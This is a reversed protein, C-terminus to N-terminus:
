WESKKEIQKVLNNLGLVIEDAEEHTADPTFTIRGDSIRRMFVPAALWRADKKKGGWESFIAIHKSPNSTTQQELLWSGRRTLQIQIAWVGADDVIKAEQVDAETIFPDKNVTVMVPKERFIPVTTSFDMAEKQTEVHLRLTSVQKEKKEEPSQCGCVFALLTCLLYLNFRSRGTIM